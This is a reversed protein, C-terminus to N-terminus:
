LDIWKIMIHYKNLFNELDNLNIHITKDYAFPHLFIKKYNKLNFDCYYDVNNKIGNLMCFPSVAGPLERLNQLLRDSSGFSLRDSKIKEKL